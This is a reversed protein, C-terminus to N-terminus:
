LLHGGLEINADITKLYFNDDESTADITILHYIGNSYCSYILNVGDYKVLELTENSNDIATYADKTPTISITFQASGVPNDGWDEEGSLALWDEEITAPFEINSNWDTSIEGVAEAKMGVILSNIYSYMDNSQEDTIRIPGVTIQSNLSDYQKAVPITNIDIIGASMITNTRFEVETGTLISDKEVAVHSEPDAYSVGDGWSNYVGTFNMSSTDVTRFNFNGSFRLVSGNIVGAVEEVVRNYYLGNELLPISEVGKASNIIYISGQVDVVGYSFGIFKLPLIKVNALTVFNTDLSGWEDIPINLIFAKTFVYPTQNQSVGIVFWSNDFDFFLQPNNQNTKLDLFPIVNEALYQGMIPQWLEPTQGATRFLGATTLIIISQDVMVSLCFPNLPAHDRSLITHRYTVTSQIAQSRIIGSSLFTLFGDPVKKVSIPVSNSLGVKTHAQAGAGTFQSPVFDTGDGIASWSTFLDSLVILRGESETCAYINTPISGGSLEVWTNTDPSYQLMPYGERAFYFKNGVAAKTFPYQSDLRYSFTYLPVLKTTETDLRFVGEDTFILSEVTESIEFFQVNVPNEIGKYSVIERGLASVPGQATVVFNKGAVVYPEAAQKRDILPILGKIRPYFKQM